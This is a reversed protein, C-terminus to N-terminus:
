LFAYLVVRSVVRLNVIVHAYTYLFYPFKIRVPISLMWEFTITMRRCSINDLLLILFWIEDLDLTYKIIILNYRYTKICKSDFYVGKFYLSGFIIWIFIFSYYVLVILTPESYLSEIHVSRIVDVSNVNCKDNHLIHSPLFVNRRSCIIHTVNKHSVFQYSSLNLIKILTMSSCIYM